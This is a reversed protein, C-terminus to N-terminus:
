INERKEQTLQTQSTSRTLTDNKNSHLGRSHNEFAGKKKKLNKEQERNEKTNAENKEINREVTIKNTPQQFLLNTFYRTRQYVFECVKSNCIYM